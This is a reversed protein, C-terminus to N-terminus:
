RGQWHPSQGTEMGGDVKQRGPTQQCEKDMVTEEQIGREGPNTDIKNRKSPFSFHTNVRVNKLFKSRIARQNRM